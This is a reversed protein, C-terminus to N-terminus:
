SDIFSRIRLKVGLDRAIDKCTQIEEPTKDKDVITLIVHPVYQKSERAFDLMAQYAAEGQVPHCLAVYERATVANLSISVTDIRGKLEPCVDRGLILNAHGNTNIRVPPLKDGFRAKLQDVLWLIDDLRYTPEGYGCFVIERYSCVDRSLFSDMAEQRSPEHELWLSDETYISGQAKGHRLCFECNFNCRNTPNVYLNDGYEYTITFGKEM